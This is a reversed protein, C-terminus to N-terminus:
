RLKRRSSHSAVVARLSTRRRTAPMHRWDARPPPPPLVVLLLALVLQLLAQSGEIPPPPLGAPLVPLVILVLLLPLPLRKGVRLAM